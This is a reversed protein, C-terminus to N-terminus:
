VFKPGLNTEDTIVDEIVFSDLTSSNPALILRNVGSKYRSPYNTQLKFEALTFLFMSM